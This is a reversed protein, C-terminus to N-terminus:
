LTPFDVNVSTACSQPRDHEPAWAHGFVVEYSAPLVGDKRFQEYHDVMANIRARGMLSHPRDSAANHAGLTKLERMLQWADPYTLTYHEVDMVPDSLGAQLLADGVDHMDPFEHVHTNNDVAQWSARLEKLTDPGFTSFMLLGNPKLVRKFESFTQLLDSCWQLALNSFLLDVSNDALPLCEADGCVYSQNRHFTRNIWSQKQRAHSLMAPAIDLLTIHAKRYRKNLASSCYGTGAGVDLIIDPDIKILDLRETINSGVEHQLVAVEDYHEAARDFSDRVSRKDLHQHNTHDPRM